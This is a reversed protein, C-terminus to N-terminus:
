QALYQNIDIQGQTSTQTADQGLLNYNGVAAAANANDQVTTQVVPTQPISYDNHNLQTQYNAQSANQLIVNTDGVASTSNVNNQISTQAQALVTIPSLAIISIAIGLTSKKM